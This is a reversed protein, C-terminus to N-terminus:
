FSFLIKLFVCVEKSACFFVDTKHHWGDKLHDQLSMLIKTTIMLCDKSLKFYISKVQKSSSPM